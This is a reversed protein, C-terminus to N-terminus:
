ARNHGDVLAVVGGFDDGVNSHGSDEASGDSVIQDVEDVGVKSLVSSLTM